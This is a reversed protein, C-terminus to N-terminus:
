EMDLLHSSQHLYLVRNIDTLPLDHMGSAGLQCQDTLAFCDTITEVSDWAPTQRLFQAQQYILVFGLTVVVWAPIALAWWRDPFYYIGLAHLAADPLFAWAVFVLWALMSVAYIVFGYYEARLEDHDLGSALAAVDGPRLVYQSHDSNSAAIPENALRPRQPRSPLSHPARPSSMAM